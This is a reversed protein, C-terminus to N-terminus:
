EDMSPLYSLLLGYHPPMRRVAEIRQIPLCEDRAELMRRYPKHFLLAAAKSPMFGVVRADRIFLRPIAM